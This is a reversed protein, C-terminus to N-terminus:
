KVDKESSELQLTLKEFEKKMELNEFVRLEPIQINKLADFLNRGSRMMAVLETSIKVTEYSNKAAALDPALRKKALAIDSRQKELYTQYLRAAEITLKQAHMNASLVETNKSSSNDRLLAQTQRLLNETKPIIGQIRKGERDKGGSIQPIYKFDIDRIINTYMQNLIELLVTYMGYYRRATELNEGSQNTLEELQVTLSKVNDFAVLMEIANDGVVTSLLFDLQESSLHLGLTSLEKRLDEKTDEIKEERRAIEKKADEIKEEYDGSTTEWTKWAPKSKPASIRKEQYEVIKRNAEQIKAQQEQIQERYSQTQSTILISVAEDLLDDIDNQIDEKDEHLMASNPLKEQKDKLKLAKGLRPAMKEWLKAHMEESAYVAMSILFVPIWWSNPKMMKGM